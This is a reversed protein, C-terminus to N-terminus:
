RPLPPDLALVSAGFLVYILGLPNLQSLLARRATLLAEGATQGSLFGRLFHLALDGALAEFVQAETGLVAAAGFDELFKTMFPSVTRPSFAATGCGNLFVLPTHSWDVDALDAAKVVDGKDRPGTAFALHPAYRDGLKDGAHCYLYVIDLPAQKLLEIVQAKSAAFQPDVVHVAGPRAALERVLAELASRHQAAWPLGLHMGAALQVTNERWRISEPLTRATGALGDVQHLPVEIQHRFGWFRLPCVVQEPSPPSPSQASLPCEASGGCPHVPLKGDATPLGATCVVTRESDVFRRDYLAPWPLSGDQHIHAVQIIQDPEALREDLQKRAQKSFLCDYLEWGAAALRILAQKGQEARAAPSLEPAFRYSPPRSELGEAAELAKRLNESYGLANEGSRMSLHEGAKLTILSERDSRNMVISAAPRGRVTSAACDSRIAFELRYYYASPTRAELQAPRVSLLEAAKELDSAEGIRAVLFFSQLLLSERYIGFRLRLWTAQAAASAKPRLAFIAPASDHHEAIWLPQIADGLVDFDIGSVAVELRQGQPRIGQGLLAKVLDAPEDIQALGAAAAIRVQLYCTAAATLGRRAAIPALHSPEGSLLEAQVFRVFTPTPTPKPTAATPQPPTPIPSEISFSFPASRTDLTRDQRSELDALAKAIRGLQAHQDISRGARYFEPGRRAVHGSRELAGEVKEGHFLADRGGGSVLVLEVDLSLGAVARDISPSIPVRAAISAMREATAERAVSWCLLVAPGGRQALRTALRALAPSFAAESLFCLLRTQTREILQEIKVLAADLEADRQPERFPLFLIDARVAVRPEADREDTPLAKFSLIERHAAVSESVASALSQADAESGPVLAVTQVPVPLWRQAIRPPALALRVFFPLRTEALSRTRPRQRLLARLRSEIPEGFLAADHLVLGIRPAREALVCDELKGLDADSLLPEASEIELVLSPVDAGSM